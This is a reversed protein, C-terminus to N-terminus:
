PRGARRCTSWAWTAGGCARASALASRRPAPRRPPSGSPTPKSATREGSPGRANPIPSFAISFATATVNSSRGRRPARRHHRLRHRHDHSSRRYGARGQDMAVRMAKVSEALGTFVAEGVLFHGINLEAIEPLAAITRATAYDLGHGAHVELGLARAQVRAAASANGGEANRKGISRGDAIPTAGPAAGTHIEIVPAGLKAATEIQRPDAAIFLSVRIGADKLRAVVPVLQNHQGAVDLGGETTREERREPVLCAAHPKTRLAIEIMEATAAMELNLPKGIGAKLREIDDDRIHRRDERLHATIGDAGAEIAMAAARLPDPHRGGRANRITAVHDINVGLRLHPAPM